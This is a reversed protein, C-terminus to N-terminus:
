TMPPEIALVKDSFSQWSANSDDSIDSFAGKFRKMFDRGVARIVIAYYWNLPSSAISRVLEKSDDIIKKLDDFSKTLLKTTLAAGFLYHGASTTSNFGLEHDILYKLTIGSIEITETEGIRLRDLTDQRLRASEDSITQFQEDVIEVLGALLLVKRGLELSLQADAKYQMDHELEAWAHQLITRVQIECKLGRFNSYESLNCRADSLEVIHHISQYGVTRNAMLESSKDITELVRFERKVIESIAQTDDTLYAIVRVGALDTIDNMPESYKPKGPLQEDPKQAKEYFSDLAKARSELTHIRFSERKLIDRILGEVRKAFDEYGGRVRAFADRAVRAHKEFDFAEQDPSITLM